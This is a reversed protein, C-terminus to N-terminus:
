KERDSLPASAGDIKDWFQKVEKAKEKHDIPAYSEGKEVDWSLPFIKTIDRSANKKLHPMLSTAIIARTQEWGEKFEREQRKRTGTVINHFQRPTLSYFYPITM